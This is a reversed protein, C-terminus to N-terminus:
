CVAGKKSGLVSAIDFDDVRKLHDEIVWGDFSVQVCCRRADLQTDRFHVVREEDGSFLLTRRRQVASAVANLSISREQILWLCPLRGM